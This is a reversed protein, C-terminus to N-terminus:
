STSIAPEGAAKFRVTHLPLLKVHAPLAVLMATGALLGYDVTPIFRSLALISFGPMITLSTYYVASGISRHCGSESSWHDGDLPFEHRSRHIYHITEDVGIGATIAAISITM